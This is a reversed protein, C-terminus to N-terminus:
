RRKVSRIVFGAPPVSRTQFYAALAATIAAVEEETIGQDAPAVAPGVLPAPPVAQQPVTKESVNKRDTVAHIGSRIASVFLIFLGLIVFVAIMGIAFTQLGFLVKDWFPLDNADTVTDSAESLLLMLKLSM